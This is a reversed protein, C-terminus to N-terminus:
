RAAGAQCGGRMSWTTGVVDVVAVPDIREPTVAAPVTGVVLIVAGGGSGIDAMAGTRGGAM